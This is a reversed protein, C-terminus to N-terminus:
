PVFFSGSLSGSAEELILKVGHNNLLNLGLVITRELAPVTPRIPLTAM